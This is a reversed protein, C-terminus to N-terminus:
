FGLAEANRYSVAAHEAPSLRAAELKMRAAAPTLFPAHTGMLLRQAGHTDVARGVVDPQEALSLEASVTEPAADLIANLEPVRAGAVIMPVEPAHCAVAIADEIPVDVLGLEAPVNRLDVIRLQLILVLGADGCARKLAVDASRTRVAPCGVISGLDSVTNVIPVPTFFDTRPLPEAKAGFLAPMSSVAAKVVGDRRLLRELSDPTSSPTLPGPGVFCSIDIM